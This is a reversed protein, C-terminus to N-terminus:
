GKVRQVQEVLGRLFSYGLLLGLVPLAPRYLWPPAIFAVPLGVMIIGAIIRAYNHRTEKKQPAKLFHNVFAFVYRILGLSLIWGGAYGKEYLGVSMALVFFADIEKDLYAGFITSSRYRRALLGDFGDLIIVLLGTAALFLPTSDAPLALFYTTLALRFWTVWNAAGGLWYGNRWEERITWAMIIFSFWAILLLPLIHDLYLYSAVAGLILAAHFLLWYSLLKVSRNHSEFPIEM